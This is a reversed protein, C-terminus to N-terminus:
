NSLMMLLFEFNENSISTEYIGEIYYIDYVKDNKFVIYSHISSNYNYLEITNGCISGKININNDTYKAISDKLELIDEDSVGKWDNYCKEFLIKDNDKIIDLYKYIYINRYNNSIIKTFKSYDM